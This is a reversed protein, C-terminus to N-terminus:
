EFSNLKSSLEPNFEAIPTQGYFHGHLNSTSNTKQHHSISSSRSASHTKSTDKLDYNLRWPKILAETKKPSTMPSLIRNRELKEHNDSKNPTTDETTLTGEIHPSSETHFHKARFASISEIILL